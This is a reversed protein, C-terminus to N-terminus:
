YCGSRPGDVVSEHGRISVVNEYNEDSEDGIRLPYFNMFTTKGRGSFTDVRDAAACLYTRHMGVLKGDLSSVAAIMAQEGKTENSINL